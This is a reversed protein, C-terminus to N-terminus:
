PRIHGDGQVIWMTSTLAELGMPGRAHLKQTSIGLEAGLGLAGGDTFRTSANVMVVASDVGAVFANVVRVDRALVAETHGTGYARVHEVAADVDPVVRVALDLSGYETAWDEQGAEALLGERGRAAEALVARAAADAHLTTGAEWLAAAAAPLYDGAVAQHVLLTEAANCVGVRQTKANVVVDVAQALDASADVYVHCNGSGTEIVPVTSEEVVTRILGAGGRPVLVDILGHARMLARAGQRGAADISSVLDEGLGVSALASRLAAVIAANSDRAASGGRLVVANGSRVALGAVDATVNPRAEYVMGVVGLPVRVRRVELGNPLRRGDVVQGVPDPLTTLEELAGAVAELRTTSLALRDVLGERMGAARAREVDAANAALVDPARDRLTRAMAELARDKLETTAAALPRQAARAARAVRTVLATADAGGVDDPVQSSPDTQTQTM